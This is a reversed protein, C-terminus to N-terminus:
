PRARWRVRSGGVCNRAECSPSSRQGTAPLSSRASSCAQLLTLNFMWVAALGKIAATGATGVLALGIAARLVPRIESFGAALGAEFLIVALAITGILRGVEYDERGVGFDIWGAGDSGISMGLGLFVVLAPVRLRDAILSAVVGATLLAGTALILQPDDM